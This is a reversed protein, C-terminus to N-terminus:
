GLINRDIEYELEKAIQLLAEGMLIFLDSYVIRLLDLDMSCHATKVHYGCAALRGAMKNLETSKGWCCVPAAKKKWGAFTLFIKSQLITNIVQVTNWLGDTM